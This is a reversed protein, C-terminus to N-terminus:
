GAQAAAARGRAAAAALVEPDSAWVLTGGLRTIRWGEATRAAEIRAREGLTLAPAPVAEPARAPDHAVTFVLRNLDITARDGDIEVVPNTHLHQTEAWNSRGRAAQATLAGIGRSVGGPTVAEADPTFIAATEDATFRSEDLWRDWRALLDILATRDDLMADSM